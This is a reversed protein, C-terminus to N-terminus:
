SGCSSSHSRTAISWAEFSVSSIAECLALCCLEVKALLAEHPLLRGILEISEILYTHLSPRLVVGLIAQLECGGKMKERGEGFRCLYFLDLEVLLDAVQM